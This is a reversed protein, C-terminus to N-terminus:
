DPIFTFDSYGAIYGPVTSNEPFVTSMGGREVASLILVSGRTLPFINSSGNKIIYYSKAQGGITNNVSVVYRKDKEVVLEDVNVLTFKEPSSQEISKQRLLKKTDKEWLSVTYTGPNPMKCGLQTIKGNVSTSFTYGMEFNGYNGITETWGSESLLSAMPNEKPKVDDGKKCAGAVVLLTIMLFSVTSKRMIEVIRTLISKRSRKTSDEMMKSFM